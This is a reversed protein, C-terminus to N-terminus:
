DFIILSYSNEYQSSAFRFNQNNYGIILSRVSLSRASAWVRAIFTSTEDFRM